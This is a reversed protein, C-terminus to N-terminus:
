ATFRNTKQISLQDEVAHEIREATKKELSAIGYYKAIAAVYREQVLRNSQIQKWWGENLSYTKSVDVQKLFDIVDDCEYAYAIVDLLNRKPDRLFKIPTERRIDSQSLRIEGIRHDLWLTFRLLGKSGLRDFYVLLCLRFLSQLFHSLTKVVDKYFKQVAKIEIDISPKYLLLNLMAAYKEAYLFFGVGRSIPQRLSFPLYASQVGLQQSAPTLYFDNNHTLSLLQGWQNAGAPYLIVEGLKTINTREGFHFLMEDKSELEAVQNGTWNRARWLYYHFLEPAFDHNPSIKGFEGQLQVKEWRSACHSQLLEDIQAANSHIARLHFAKLLDTSGLPVGRNNQTDFFTFALDERTVKIVTFRLRDYMGILKARELNNRDLWNQITLKAQQINVMSRSSRFSFQIHTPLRKNLLWYLIALSTLRQQGDIVCQNSQKDGIKQHLLITGMYYADKDKSEQIFSLLDNLLQTIKDTGWVYARQYNDLALPCATTALNNFTLLTVSIDKQDQINLDNSARVAQEIVM